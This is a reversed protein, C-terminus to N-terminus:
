WKWKTQKLYGILILGCRSLLSSLNALCGKSRFKKINRLNKMQLYEKLELCQISKNKIMKTLSPLLVESEKLSDRMLPVRISYRVILSTDRIEVEDLRAVLNKKRGPALKVYDKVKVTIDGIKVSECYTKGETANYKEGGFKIKWNGLYM